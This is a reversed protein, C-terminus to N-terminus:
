GHALAENLLRRFERMRVGSASEPSPPSVVELWERGALLAARLREIDTAFEARAQERIADRFAIIEPWPETTEHDAM